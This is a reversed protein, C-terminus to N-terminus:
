GSSGAAVMNVNGSQSHTTKIDMATPTKQPLGLHPTGLLPTVQARYPVYSINGGLPSSPSFRFYSLHLSCFSFYFSFDFDSYIRFWFCLKRKKSENM